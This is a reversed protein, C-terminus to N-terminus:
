KMDNCYKKKLDMNTNKDRRKQQFEKVLINYDHRMDRMCKVHGM